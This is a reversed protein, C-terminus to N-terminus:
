PTILEPKQEDSIDRLGHIQSVSSISDYLLQNDKRISVLENTISRAYYSEIYGAQSVHYNNLWELRDVQKNLGDILHAKKRLVKILSLIGCTMIILFVLITILQQESM